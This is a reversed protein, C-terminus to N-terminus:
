DRPGDNGSHPKERDIWALIERYRFDEIWQDLQEAQRPHSDRLWTILMRIDELNARVTANELAALLEPPVQSPDADAPATKPKHAPPAPAPPEYVFRIGLHKQMIAFVQEMKFPKRMFDDCGASLVMAREEEFTSATMAIVATAQGQISQKIRRCAEYGDMVPMRMDLFVLHPEWGEWREVAQHGNEAEKLEFGFPVLLKVILRRNDPKDDVVLIRCRRQNPALAVPFQAPPKVRIRASHSPNAEIEFGFCAGHGDANRVWLDGGMLQVYKKSIPLGLGTGEHSEQGSRTQIFPEFIGDMDADSIGPGTDRVAFRLRLTEPKDSEAPGVTLSVTGTRTFKIANGLLNILVQRLKVEDARILRPTHSEKEVILDLGKDAAKLGFMSEMDELLEFLDLDRPNLTTCGAEIKSMDLIDNILTLLHEGSRRIIELNERQDPLLSPKGEMLQTFGIIANLPTRLEHSMNALFVSKAQSAAEAAEKARQLDLEAERRQTVDRANIVIAKLAKNDTLNIFHSEFYLYHGNKHRLRHELACPGTKTELRRLIRKLPEQDGPHFIDFACERLLEGPGYGLITTHSPSQYVITGDTQFAQTIDTGHETLGRFREERRGIQRNWLVALLLILVAAGGIQLVVKKLQAPTIGHEYRVGIWRQRIAHHTDRSIGDLAKNVIATLRPWDKRVGMFLQYNGYRTPAAIKLNALGNKEILHSMAALNGIHADARGVSVAELAKLPSDVFYPTVAIQDRQLWEYSSVKKVFAVTRGHLDALEGVFPADKQTIIVIPFSLYPQSFDLYDRREPTIAVCAILDLQRNKVMELVKGWNEPQHYAIRVGLRDGLLRLYDSGMGAAKGTGDFYHFPPFALPGSVRIVPHAKLWQEEQPSLYLKDISSSLPSGGRSFGPLLILYLLAMLLCYKLKMPSEKDSKGHLSRSEAGIM